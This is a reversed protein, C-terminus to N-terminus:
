RLLYYALGIGFVALIVVAIMVVRRVFLDIMNEAEFNLACQPCGRLGAQLPYGCDRCPKTNTRESNQIAAMQFIEVFSIQKGPVRADILSGSTVTRWRFKVRGAEPTAITIPPGM